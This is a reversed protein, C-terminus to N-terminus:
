VGDLDHLLRGTRTAFRGLFIGIGSSGYGFDTSLRLLFRGPFAMTGRQAVGYLLVSEVIKQAKIDFEEDGSLESMDLMFEGIGSLGEFQGPLVAFRSYNARAIDRAIQLYREDKLARYFRILVSGIGCGGHLWYPSWVNRASNAKWRPLHHASEVVTSAMVHELARKAAVVYKDDEVVLSLYLLFLAIGSSGHAFGPLAEGTATRWAIGHDTDLSSRLVRAGVEIAQTAFKEDRTWLYMQLSALGCGAAGHFVGWDAYLLDSGFAMSIADVARDQFGLRWFTYAIGTLGLYLGPPYNFATAPQKQLWRHVEHPIEVGSQRLFLLPGCAGYAVSLPNTSFVKLDAPWLRDRRKADYVELLHKGIGHVADKARDMVPTLEIGATEFVDGIASHHQVSPMSTCRRSEELLALAARPRAALLSRITEPIWSPLQAARVIADLFRQLTNPLVV